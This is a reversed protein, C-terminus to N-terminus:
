ITAQEPLTVRPEVAPMAWPKHLEIKGQKLLTHLRSSERSVTFRVNYVYM